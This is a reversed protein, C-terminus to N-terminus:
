KTNYARELDQRQTLIYDQPSLLKTALKEAHGMPDLIARAAIGM